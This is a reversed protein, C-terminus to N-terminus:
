TTGGKRGLEFLAQKAAVLLVVGSFALAIGLAGSGGKLSQEGSSVLLITVISPVFTAFYVTLPLARRLWISFTVGALLMAAATLAQASRQVIRALIEDHTRRM